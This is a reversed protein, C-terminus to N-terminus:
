LRIASTVFERGSHATAGSLSSRTLRQMMYFSPIDGDVRTRPIEQFRERHVLGIKPHGAGGCFLPVYLWPAKPFPKGNDPIGKDSMGWIAALKLSMSVRNPKGPLGSGGIRM